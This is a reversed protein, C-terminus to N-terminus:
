NRESYCKSENDLRQTFELTFDVKKFGNVGEGLNHEAIENVNKIMMKEEESRGEVNM